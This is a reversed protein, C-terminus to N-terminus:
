GERISVLNTVPGTVGRPRSFTGHDLHSLRMASAAPEEDNLTFLV